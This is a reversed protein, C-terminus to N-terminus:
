REEPPLLSKDVWTDNEYVWGVGYPFDSNLEFCQLKTAMEADEKSDALISNIIKNNEIVLFLPM